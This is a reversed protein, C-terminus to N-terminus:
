RSWPAIPGLTREEGHQFVVVSTVSAPYRRLATVTQGNERIEWPPGLEEAAPEVDVRAADSARVVVAGGHRFTAVDDGDLASPAILRLTVAREGRGEPALADFAGGDARIVDGGQQSVALPGVLVRGSGTVRLVWSVTRDRDGDERARDDEVARVLSVPGVVELHASLPGPLAGMVVADITVESGLFAPKDPVSVVAELPAHPLFAFAEHTLHPAFDPDRMAQRPTAVGSALARQLDQGAGLLDGSRARYAARNYRAEAFDPHSLLVSDLTTIARDTQGQGALAHAHWAALLVDNPRHERAAAFALAAASPDSGVSAAGREYDDVAERLSTLRPDDPEGCALLWILALM